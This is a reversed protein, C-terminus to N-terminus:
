AREDTAGDADVAARGAFTVIAYRGKQHSPITLFISGCQRKQLDSYKELHPKVPNPTNQGDPVNVPRRARRDANELEVRRGKRGVIAPPMTMALDASSFRM